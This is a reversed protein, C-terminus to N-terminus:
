TKTARLQYAVTKTSTLLQKMVVGTPAATIAPLNAWVIEMVHEPVSLAVSRRLSRGARRLGRSIYAAVMIAVCQMAHRVSGVTSGALALARHHSPRPRRLM